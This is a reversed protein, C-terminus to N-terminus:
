QSRPEGQQRRWARVAEREQDLQAQAALGCLACWWEDGNQPPVQTYGTPAGNGRTTHGCTLVMPEGTADRLWVLKRAM